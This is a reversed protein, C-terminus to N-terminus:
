VESSETHMKSAMDVSVPLHPSGKIEGVKVGSQYWAMGNEERPSFYQEEWNSRNL